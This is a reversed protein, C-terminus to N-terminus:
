LGGRHFRQATSNTFSASVVENSNADFIKVSKVETGSQDDTIAWEESATDGNMKSLTWTSGALLTSNDTGDVKQWEIASGTKKNIIKGDTM